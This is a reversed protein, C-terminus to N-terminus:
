EKKGVKAFAKAILDGIVEDNHLFQAIQKIKDSDIL